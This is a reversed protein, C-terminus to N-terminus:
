RSSDGNTIPASYNLLLQNLWVASEIIQNETNRIYYPMGSSSSKSAIASIFLGVTWQEKAPALPSFKAIRLKTRLHDAAQKSNYENGDRIFIINSFEVQQILYNIKNFEEKWTASALISITSSLLFVIVTLYKLIIQM